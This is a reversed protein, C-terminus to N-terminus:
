YTQCDIYSGGNYCSVRQRNRFYEETTQKHIDQVNQNYQDLSNLMQQKSARRAADEQALAAQICQPLNEDTYGIQSCYAKADNIKDSQYRAKEAPTATMKWAPSGPMGIGGYQTCGTLLIATTLSLIRKM